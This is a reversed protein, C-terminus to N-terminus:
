EEDDSTSRKSPGARVAIMGALVTGAIIALLLTM